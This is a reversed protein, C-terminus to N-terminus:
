RVVYCAGVGGNCGPSKLKTNDTDNMVVEGLVIYNLSMFWLLGDSFGLLVFYGCVSFMVSFFVKVVIM